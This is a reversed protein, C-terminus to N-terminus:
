NSVNAGAAGSATTTDVTTDAAGSSSAYDAGSCVDVVEDNNTSGNVEM